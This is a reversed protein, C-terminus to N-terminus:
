GRSAGAPYKSMTFLHRTTRKVRCGRPPVALARSNQNNKIQGILVSAAICRFAGARRDLDDGFVLAAATSSMAPM